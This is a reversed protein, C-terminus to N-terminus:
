QRSLSSPFLSKFFYRGQNEVLKQVEEFRMPKAFYFGQAYDCGGERVFELQEKTEVGEAVTSLGLSKALALITRIINESENKCGIQCVFSKDIKITQVPLQHLYSLSSYGTGFDDLLLEIGTSKILGLTNMIRKDDAFCDKEPIEIM